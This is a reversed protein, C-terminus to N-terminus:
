PERRSRREWHFIVDGSVIAHIREDEHYLTVRRFELAEPVYKGLDSLDDPVRAPGVIPGLSRASVKFSDGAPWPPGASNLAALMREDEPDDHRAFRYQQNM